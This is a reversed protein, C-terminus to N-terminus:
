LSSLIMFSLQICCFDIKGGDDLAMLQIHHCIFLNKTEIKAGDVNKAEFITVNM